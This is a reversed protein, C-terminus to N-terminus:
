ALSGIQVRFWAPMSSDRSPEARVDLTYLLGQHSPWNVNEMGHNVAVTRNFDGFPAPPFPFGVNYLDRGYGWWWIRMTKGPDLSWNAWPDGGPGLIMSM